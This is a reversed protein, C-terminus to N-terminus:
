IVLARLGVAACGEDQTGRAPLEAKFDPEMFGEVEGVQVCRVAKVVAGAHDYFGSLAM